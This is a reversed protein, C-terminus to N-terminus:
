WGLFAAVLGITDIFGHALIPVWFNRTVLYSAALLMGAVGSDFVGAPGKYYHGFGFLISAAVAAVWAAGATGGLAEKCRLWLYRRYVLEEGFAAFTWVVALGEACGLWNHKLDNFRSMDPARNWILNGLPEDVYSGILQRVVAVGIALAITTRWSDPRSFGFGKWGGRWRLSVSGILALLIVENPVVHFVNHGIVIFAGIVFEAASIPRSETIAM